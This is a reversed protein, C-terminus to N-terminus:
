NVWKFVDGFDSWGNVLQVLAVSIGDSFHAPNRYLESIESDRALSTM